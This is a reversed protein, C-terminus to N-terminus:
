NQIDAAAWPIKQFEKFRESVHVKV